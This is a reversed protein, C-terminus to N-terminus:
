KTGIRAEGPFRLADSARLENIHRVIESSKEEGVGDDALLHALRTSAAFRAGAAEVIEAIRLIVDQRIATFQAWDGTKVYAFLELEFASGAFGIVRIRSSGSEIALHEDLMSKVHDLVFRLQELQTEVRLRSTRISSCNPDFESTKSSCRRLHEAQFSSCTRIWHRLKLSRLGIDEVTGLRDGIKCFDGVNVAKDMLLSVGGILNELTKQAGLAIALGGIGLGTLAATVNLGFVAFAGIMAIILM